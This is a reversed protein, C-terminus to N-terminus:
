CTVPAQCCAVSLTQSKGQGGRRAHVPGHACLGEWRFSAEKRGEWPSGGNWHTINQSLHLISLVLSVSSQNDEM